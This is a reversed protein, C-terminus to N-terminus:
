RFSIVSNPAPRANIFATASGFPKWPEGAMLADISAFRGFDTYHRFVFPMGEAGLVSNTDAVHFHLHPGISSSGSSGLKAIVDGRTVRQGPKVRVSDRQLHEYFVFRGDGIDITVYNGSGKEAPVPKPADDPEGDVAAAITGDAVAFVEAGRGNWDSAGPTRAYTGAPPMRIFDIAM